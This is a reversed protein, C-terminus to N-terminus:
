ALALLQEYRDRVNRPIALGAIFADQQEILAQREWRAAWNFQWWDDVTAVRPLGAFNDADVMGGADVWTGVPVGALAFDFLITSPASIIYAFSGLDMDYLPKQSLEVNDPLKLGARETFRGAPHPRLAIKQGVMALRSAFETFAELFDERLRGNVFRVSHLNECILGPLDREGKARRQRDILIPPGAVFMKSREAASVSHMHELEFWAVALDAAFRVNRGATADHRKNHLFGVCEFGHQLTVTRIRGPMARFLEHAKLHARADSESGAIIMGAGAGLHQLVDFANEYVIPAVSLEAALQDIERKWRGDADLGEFGDSVLFHLKRTPIAAALRILPRLVAVDQVLGFHFAIFPPNVSDAKVIPRIKLSDWLLFRLNNGADM